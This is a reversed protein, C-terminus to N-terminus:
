DANDAHCFGLCTGNGKQRPNSFRVQITKPEAGIARCVVPCKALFLFAIQKDTRENMTEFNAQGKAVVFKLSLGRSLGIKCPNAGDAASM